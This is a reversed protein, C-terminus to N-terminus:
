EPNNLWELQQLLIIANLDLLTNPRNQLLFTAIDEENLVM